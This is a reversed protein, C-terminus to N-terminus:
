SRGNSLKLKHEIPKAASVNKAEKLGSEIPAFGMDRAQIIPKAIKQDNLKEKPTAPVNGFRM